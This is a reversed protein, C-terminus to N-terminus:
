DAVGDMLGFPDIFEQNNYRIIRRGSGLRPHPDAIKKLIDSMIKLDFGSSENAVRILMELADPGDDNKGNPFARFQDLLMKQSRAFKVTGNKLWTYLGFIRSQKSGTNTLPHIRMFVGEAKASDTLSKVMLEQFGNNEVVFKTCPYRKAYAIIDKILKDPNSRSIDAVIVYYDRGKRAVVMIASYDGGFLKKSMAPDCSGFFEVGSGLGKLLGDITHYEDDWYAFGDVDFTMNELDVPENQMESMFSSENEGFLDMLRRLDWKKDWLISAGEDMRHKYDNYFRLAADPGSVRGYIDRGYRINHYTAWLDMSKPWEQIARFKMGTWVPDSEDKLYEALLSLAHHVTGIFLYNTGESGVKLVSGNLWRKMKEKSELTFQNEGSELDDMIVVTPRKAGFKRGRIQQGYGLALVEIGNRTIIDNQKWKPAKPRGEAEFIEPFDRRLLENETLEKRLNELIAVAQSATNSIVVIFREKSYCILYTLYVLTVLTSKGFDRPAAIAIKKGRDHTISLLTDYIKSHAASPEITVHHRLYLKAFKALSEEGQKRYLSSADQKFDHSM